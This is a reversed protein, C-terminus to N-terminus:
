NALLPLYLHKSSKYFDTVNRVIYEVSSHQLPESSKENLTEILETLKKNTETVGGEEVFSLLFIINALCQRSQEPLMKESAVADNADSVQENIDGLSANVASEKDSIGCNNLDSEEWDDENEWGDQEENAEKPEKEEEKEEVKEKVEEEVVEAKTDEIEKGNDKANVVDKKSFELLKQIIDNMIWTKKAEVFSSRLNQNLYMNCMEHKKYHASDFFKLSLWYFASSLGIHPRVPLTDSDLSLFNNSEIIDAFSTEGDLTSSFAIFLKGCAKTMSVDISTIIASIQKEDGVNLTNEKTIILIRLLFIIIDLKDQELNVEVLDEISKSFIEVQSLLTKLVNLRLRGFTDQLKEKSFSGWSGSVGDLDTFERDLSKFIKRPVSDDSLKLLNLFHLTKLFWQHLASESCENEQRTPATTTLNIVSTIYDNINSDMLEVFSSTFPEHLATGRFSKLEIERHVLHRISMTNELSLLNIHEKVLQELVDRQVYELIRNAVDAESLLQVTFCTSTNSLFFVEARRLANVFNHLLYLSSKSSQVFDSTKSCTVLCDILFNYAISAFASFKKETNEPPVHLLYQRLDFSVREEDFWNHFGIIDSANWDTVSKLLRYLDNTATDQSVFLKDVYSCTTEIYNFVPFFDIKPKPLNKASKQVSELRKSLYNQRLTIFKDAVKELTDLAENDHNVIIYALVYNVIPSASNFHSPVPISYDSEELDSLEEQEDDGFTDTYFEIDGDEDFRKGKSYLIESDALLSESATNFTAIKYELYNVFSNKLIILNTSSNPNQRLTEKFTVGITYYLKAMFVLTSSRKLKDTKLKLDLSILKNNIVNNLITKYSKTRSSRANSRRIMSDFKSLSSSGFSVYNSPKYSLDSLHNDVERSMESMGEIDEAIRILDRYKEGVLRHLDEKAKAVNRKYDYHLKQVQHVSYKSFIEDVSFEALESSSENNTLHSPASGPSALMVLNRRSVEM